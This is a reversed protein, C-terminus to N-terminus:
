INAINNKNLSIEIQTRFFSYIINLILYYYNRYLYKALLKKKKDQAKVFKFIKVLM